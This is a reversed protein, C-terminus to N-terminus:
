IRVLRLAAGAHSSENLKFVSVARTLNQAEEELSEAAAAAEEVLASNQQSVEDIQTIATKVQEIGQSQENSSASIESMIDTVRKVANEIEEMTTGADNVLKTGVEVKSVSDDILTKIEKAASASRQALNRVETAVVAFGRGQEGARAAEVAANLALINTQFAIGDIVSIIDVIKRSSENISNMTGVVQQVVAGGKKAVGSANHALQNAQKANDANQRVTSTLEEISAVTEELSSALEETRQSLDTNGSAIEKSATGISDVSLKVEDILKKLNQVTTNVGEKTQGFLGHYENDITKTLDGNAMANAVRLIDTLGHETIESLKNIGEGLQRMAGEKDSLDLRKSFDGNIGASVLNELAKQTAVEQTTDFWEVSTGLREGQEGFVPNATLNFIRIGVNITANHTGTMASLMQRQTQPSKHFADFDGGLVKDASFNPLQKRIDAEGLRLMELVSRNAYIIKGDSDAIMMRTTAGDLSVKIRTIEAALKRDKENQAKLKEHMQKMSALLSTQDGSKTAVLINLDGEAIKAAIEAAYNPEGGLQKMLNRVIIRSLLYLLTQLLIQGVILWFIIDHLKKFDSSMDIELDSAGNVSGEQVTHCSMCNTGHYNLLAVYPTIARYIMVGNRDDLAYIAQKSEIAQRELDDKIKEEPLGPGYQDVVQQTRVLSLAAINGSSSIKKILLKRTNVDGISGTEMLMNASDIVENAIGQARQHVSDIMLGKISNYLLFTATSLLMFLVPMLIIQLKVQLSLNHFWGSQALTYNGSRLSNKQM